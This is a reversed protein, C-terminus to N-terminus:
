HTMGPRECGTIRSLTATGESDIVTLLPSGQARGIGAFVESEAPASGWLEESDWLVYELGTREIAACIEPDTEGYDLWGAILYEDSTWEGTFHPFMAERDGIAWSLASGDWPNGAILAGEPVTEPLRELLALQDADLLSGGKHQRVEFTSEVSARAGGAVITAWSSIVVVATLIGLAVRGLAPRRVEIASATTVLALTALPVTIMPLLALLRYKDKYWTGTALKAFDSNSGAALCYLVMVLAFSGILWRTEPFKAALVAGAITAAALAIFPFSVNEAPPLVPAHALVQGASELVGQRAVAPGGNLHDSIPRNAVDFTRYVYWWGVGGIAGTAAIVGGSVLMVLRRGRPSAWHRRALRIGGAILLPVILVAFSPLSRPHSLGVAILWTVGLSWGLGRPVEADLVLGTVIALGFPLLAYALGTPYLTGWALLLLPFAASCSSLLAAVVGVRIAPARRALAALAFLTVGSTWILGASVIWAVNAATVISTGSLQVILAAFAHWAAPYFENGGGQQTMSYLNFSSADGTDLVFAVANLHFVGDYTQSIARSLDLGGFTTVGVVAGSVLAAALTSIAARDWAGIPRVVKASLRAGLAVAAAAGSGLAVPAIGFPVGAWSAVVAATSIIAISIVPAAAFWWMGAIRLIAAVTGGPVILVAIAIAFAGALEM